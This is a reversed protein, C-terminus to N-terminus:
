GSLVLDGTSLVDIVRDVGQADIVTLTPGSGVITVSQKIDLDGSANADDGAAGTLVITAPPIVITDGAAAASILTRLQGPAGSDGFDSVVVIAATATWPMAAFVLVFPLSSRM